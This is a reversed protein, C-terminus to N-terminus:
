EETHIHLHDGAGPHTLLLSLIEGLLSLSPYSLKVDMWGM